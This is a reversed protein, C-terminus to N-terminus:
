LVTWLAKRNITDFAKTLDIFVLYLPKNQEICKEQLQRVNFILDVTSRGPRFGCQAESLIQESVTIFINLIVRAFIKGAVSLLYIGRYNGCDSKSGKKRNPSVILAYRFDDPMMEEVWVILLVDHFAVLADVSSSRNLLTSVHERWRKSLDEQDKILTKRDSTLLPASGSASPGFVTKLLSFFKKTNHTDAYHQVEAAKDQWWQDQM